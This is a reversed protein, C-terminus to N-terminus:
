YKPEFTFIWVNCLDIELVAAAAAGNDGHRLISPQETDPAGSLYSLSSLKVLQRLSFQRSVIRYLGESTYLVIRGDGLWRRGHLARAGNTKIIGRKGRLM